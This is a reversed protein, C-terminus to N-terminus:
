PTPARNIELWYKGIEEVAARFAEFQVPKTVFGNCGLRYSEAIDRDQNSSTMVVVPIRMTAVDTKIERLVELGGIRPMKLDLLVLKLDHRRDREAFPGECRIFALGEVGDRVWYLRNAVQSKRLARMTMEADMSNDEVLLIDIGDFDKM